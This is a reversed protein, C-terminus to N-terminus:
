LNEMKGHEKYGTVTQFYNSVMVKNNIQNGNVMIFYKIRLLLEMDPDKVVSCVEEIYRVMKLNLLKISNM